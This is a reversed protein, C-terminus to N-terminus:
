TKFDNPLHLEDMAEEWTMFGSESNLQREEEESLPITDPDIKVIDDWDPQIQKVYLYQIFDFALQQASEPLREFLQIVKDKDVAM